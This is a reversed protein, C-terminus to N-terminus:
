QPFLYTLLLFIDVFIYPPKSQYPFATHELEYMSVVQLPMAENSRVLDRYLDSLYYTTTLTDLHYKGLTDERAALCWTFSALADESRGMHVYLIGLDNMTTMFDPHKEGLVDKRLELCKEFILLSEDYRGSNRYSVALDNMTTLTDPHKVGLVEEKLILCKEALLLAEDCRGIKQYLVVTNRMFKLTDFHKDGLLDKMLILCKEHLPLAKDYSGLKYYFSCMDRITKVTCINNIGILDQTNTMCEEYIELAADYNKMKYMMLALNYRVVLTSENNRQIDKSFIGFSMELLRKASVYQGRNMDIIAIFLIASGYEFENCKKDLSSKVTMVVGASVCDMVIGNLDDSGICKCAELIKFKENENSSKSKWIDISRIARNVIRYNETLIFCERELRFTAIEFRCKCTATCYIEFLCWARTLPIPHKWSPVVLVTHNFYEIASMFVNSWWKADRDADDHQNISFLDFWIIIDMNNRLHHQLIDIMELFNYDWAHSIFVQAEGVSSTYRKKLFQCFSSNLEVTLPKVYLDNVDSTTLGELESRGGCESFFLHLSSLRIGDRPFSMHDSISRVDCLPLAKKFSSKTITEDLALFYTAAVEEFQSPSNRERSIDMGCNFPSEAIDDADNKTAMISSAEGQRSQLM